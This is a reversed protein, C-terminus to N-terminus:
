RAMAGNAAHGSAVATAAQLDSSDIKGLRVLRARIAEETRKFEQALAPVEVADDFRRALTEDDAASWAKGANEPLNRDRNAPARRSALSRAAFFLARTVQVSQYPSDPPFAEGTRPDRGDALAQVIQIAETREM